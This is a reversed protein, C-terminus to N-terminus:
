EEPGLHDMHVRKLNYFEYDPGPKKWGKEENDWAKEDVGPTYRYVEPDTDVWIFSNSLSLSETTCVDVCLGCWCCRGYDVRPRLGSDGHKTEIGEVPVLDIAENECITECTGCGICKDIDNKHFGRYRDAGIREAVPDKITVPKEFVKKWASFPVIVDKLSM